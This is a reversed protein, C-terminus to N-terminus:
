NKLTNQLTYLKLFKKQKKKIDMYLYVNFENNALPVLLPVYPVWIEFHLKMEKLKKCQELTDFM